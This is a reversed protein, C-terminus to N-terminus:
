ILSLIKDIDMNDMLIDLTNLLDTDEEADSVSHAKRLLAAAHAFDYDIVSQRFEKLIESIHSVNNQGSKNKNENSKYKGSLENFREVMVMYRDIFSPLNSHIYETDNSKGAMKNNLVNFSAGNKM